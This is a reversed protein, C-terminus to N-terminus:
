RTRERVIGKGVKRLAGEAVSAPSGYDGEKRFSAIAAM